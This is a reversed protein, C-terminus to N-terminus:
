RSFKGEQNVLIRSAREGDYGGIVFIRHDVIVLCAGNVAKPLPEAAAEFTAGFDVSREVRDMNSAGDYGGAIVLGVEASYDFARWERQM